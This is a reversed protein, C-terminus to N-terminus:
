ILVLFGGVSAPGGSTNAFFLESLRLQAVHLEFVKTVGRSKEHEEFM